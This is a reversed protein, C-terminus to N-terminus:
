AGPSLNGSPLAFVTAKTMREGDKIMLETGAERKDWKVYGMAVSDGTEPSVAFSTIRGVAHDGDLIESGQAAPETGAFRLGVLTKAPHGLNNIRAVIEQGPFCGKNFDIAPYLGAELPITGTDMDHGFLPIGHLVRWANWTASDYLNGSGILEELKARIPQQSSPGRSIWFGGAVLNVPRMLFLTDGAFEAAFFKRSDSETPFLEQTVLKGLDKGEVAFFTVPSLEQIAVNEMIVYKELHAALGDAAPAALILFDDRSVVFVWLDAVMRGDGRMATAYVCSGDPANKVSNSLQRHLYDRADPGSVRILRWDPLEFAAARERAARLASSITDILPM